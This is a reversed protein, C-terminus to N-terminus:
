SPKGKGILKQISLIARVSLSVTLFTGLYIDKLLKKDGLCTLLFFQNESTYLIVFVLIFLIHDGVKCLNPLTVSM